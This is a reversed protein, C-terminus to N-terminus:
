ASVIQTSTVLSVEMAALSVVLYVVSCRDKSFFFWAVVTVVEVVAQQRHLVV